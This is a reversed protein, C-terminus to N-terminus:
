DEIDRQYYECVNPPVHRCHLVETRRGVLQQKLRTLGGGGGKVTNCYKCRWGPYLNEGHEWVGDKDRSSMTCRCICCLGGDVIPMASAYISVVHVYLDGTGM